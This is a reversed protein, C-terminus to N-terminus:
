PWQRQRRGRWSRRSLHRHDATPQRARGRGGPAPLRRRLPHRRRLLRAAGSESAGQRLLGASARRVRLLRWAVRPPINKCYDEHAAYSHIFIARSGPDDRGLLSTAEAIMVDDYSVTAFGTGVSARYFKTHDAHMGLDAVPNDWLGFRNHNSLWWTRAGHAKLVDILTYPASGDAQAHQATLCMGVIGDFNLDTLMEVLSRVTHSHPATPNAFVILDGRAADLFPTTKRQYGYVSMHHRTTSEGIYIVLDTPTSPVNLNAVPQEFRARSALFLERQARFEAISARLNGALRLTREALTGATVVILAAAAFATVQWRLHKRDSRRAAMMRQGTLAAHAVLLAAVLQVLMRDAHAAVFQWGERRDTQFVAQLSDVGIPAVRADFDFVWIVVLSGLLGILTSVAKLIRGPLAEVVLSCLFATLLALHELWTPSSGILRVVVFVVCPFAWARVRPDRWPQGSRTWSWLRPLSSLGRRALPTKLVLLAALVIIQGRITSFSGVNAVIELAVLGALAMAGISFLRELWPRVPKAESEPSPTRAVPNGADRAGPPEGGPNM